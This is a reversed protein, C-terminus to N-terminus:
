LCERTEEARRERRGAATRSGELFQESYGPIRTELRKLKGRQSCIPNIVNPKSRRFEATQKRM